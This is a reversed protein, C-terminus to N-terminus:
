GATDDGVNPVDDVEEEGPDGPRIQWPPRTMAAMFFLLILLLFALFVGLVVPVVWHFVAAALLVLGVSMIFALIYGLALGAVAVGYREESLARLEALLGQELTDLRQGAELARSVELIVDEDAGSSLGHRKKRSRM